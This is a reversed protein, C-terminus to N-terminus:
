EGALRLHPEKVPLCDQLVREIRANLLELQVLIEDQRADLEELLSPASNSAPSMTSTGNPITAVQIPLPRDTGDAVELARICGGTPWARRVTQALQVPQEWGAIGVCASNGRPASPGNTACHEGVQSDM